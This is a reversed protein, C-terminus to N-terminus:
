KPYPRKKFLFANCKELNPRYIPRTSIGISIIKPLYFKKVIPNAAPIAAQNYFIFAGKKNVKRPDPANTPPIPKNIFLPLSQNWYIYIKSKIHLQM